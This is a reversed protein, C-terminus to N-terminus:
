TQGLQGFINCFIRRKRVQSKGDTYPLPCWPAETNESLTYYWEGDDYQGYIRSYSEGVTDSYFEKETINGAESYTTKTFYVNDYTRILTEKIKEAMVTKGGENAPYTVKVTTLVKVPFSKSNWKAQFKEYSPLPTPTVTPSPTPTPTDTPTPVYTPVPTDTATPMATPTSAVPTVPKQEETTCAAFLLIAMILFLIGIKKM